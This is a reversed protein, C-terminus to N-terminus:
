RQLYKQLSPDALEEAAFKFNRAEMKKLIDQILSIGFSPKYPAEPLNNMKEHNRQYKVGFAEDREIRCLVYLPLSGMTKSPVVNNKCEDLIGVFVSM